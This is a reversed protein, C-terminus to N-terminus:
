TTLWLKEKLKNLTRELKQAQTTMVVRRSFNDNLEYFLHEMLAEDQTVVYFSRSAEEAQSANLNKLLPITQAVVIRLKEEGMGKIRKLASEFRIRGDSDDYEGLILRVLGSIYDLATHDMYSELFRSVQEKLQSIKGPTLMPPMDYKESDEYFVRFWQAMDSPHEAIHQLLQSSENFRFYSEIASKFEEPTTLGQSLARCHEYVNKLSQRRNYVFHTYSWTLLILFYLDATSFQAKKYREVLFEYYATPAEIISQISFDAEYRSITRELNKKINDEDLPEFQVELVGQFFNEITWDKVLGLRAFRYIVRELQFKTTNYDRASVRQIHRSKDQLCIQYVRKMLKFEDNVSDLNNTLMWLNTSIDSDASLEQQIKKLGKVSVLPNWISELHESNKEETLIVLCDAPARTFLSKDRGARGAEQYLAEMSGPIGYHVTYAINGKNVGMGFAKTATLLHFKNRKFGNQVAIKYEDFESERMIAGAKTTPVSGSFYHVETQLAQKLKQALTYCGKAGNVHPTFVIGAKIGHSSDWTSNWKKELESIVEILKKEKDGNDDLVKFSLEKRSYDIPTRVNQSSINFENQIDQIVNVSATATLGIYSAQPALQTITNALNLYSTRFDHGWESLCHVEDIVAYAFNKDYNISALESRFTKTQFREPSIFIFHYKGQGFDHQVQRKTHPDLESTISNIRNFGIMELDAKQDYMLSKIPCVVFSVAPQLLASLQYCISKGSGTPLLGVTNHLQLATTIIGLQGERFEPAELYPLFVNSLVFELAEKHTTQNSTDLQYSIPNCTAITYFDYDKYQYAQLADVADARVQKYTDLYHTRCYIVHPKTQFDDTYRQFISFDIAPIASAKSLSNAELETYEYQIGDFPLNHLAFLATFWLELDRIAPEVFDIQDHNCINFKWNKHFRLAGSELLDLVLIQFRIIATARIAPATSVAGHTQSHLYDKLGLLGPFDKKKKEDLESFLEIRDIVDAIKRKFESNEAFVERATFRFTRIGYKLAFEDRSADELTRHEHQNGDIEIILAAQPLYFDARQNHLYGVHRQTIESLSIEPIVLEQIFGWKGFYKRILTNHFYRAPNRDTEEDGLITRQWRPNSNSILAVPCYFDEPIQLGDFLHNRLFRSPLTPKGRQLINRLVYLIPVYARESKESTISHKPLNQIVFNHNTNSYNASYQKNLLHSQSSGRRKDSHIDLEQDFSATETDPRLLLLYLSSNQALMEPGLEGRQTKVLTLFYVKAEPKAEHIARSIENLTSGTTLVDDLILIRTKDPLSELSATYVDHIVRKRDSASLATMKENSRKKKLLEPVYNAGIKQALNKSLTHLPAAETAVLENHGLARVVYDIPPLQEASQLLVKHWRDIARPNGNKFDLLKKRIDGKYYGLYFHNREQVLPNQVDIVDPTVQSVIYERLDKFSIEQNDCNSLEGWPVCSFRVGARKACQRDLASDGIYIIESLELSFHETVKELCDPHPKHRRVDHYAVLFDVTIEFQELIKKAYHSPSDTAIAVYLGCDKLFSLLDVADLHASCNKIGRIAQGWDGKDRFPKLHLTDVLTDDLDFIVCRIM